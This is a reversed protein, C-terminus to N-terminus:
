GFTPRRVGFRGRETEMTERRWRYRAQGQTVKRVGAFIESPTHSSIREDIFAVAEPMLAIGKYATHHLHRLAIECDPRALQGFTLSSQCEYRCMRKVDRKPDIVKPPEIRLDEGNGVTGEIIKELSGTTM